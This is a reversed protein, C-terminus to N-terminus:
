RSPSPTHAIRPDVLPYILDVLLNTAVFVVAAFVVLGQVVPIDQAEVAQQTLRGIGNRSFVTEVVVSGAVLNGVTLGVMTLTPIVANRFVHRAQVHLRTAGKAWATEVYPQGWTMDLSKALLQAIVATTPVALTVAPLVLSRLGQNGMAPFVPLRFSLVQVLLLGVWFTPVSIGLPPLGLLFQRLWAVRTYTALFAIGVGAVLALLLASGALKLTEPLAQFILLLVPAGTTISTGFDGRVADGLMAAYQVPMSQDLHYRARLAAVQAPDVYSGQGGPDLMISVPDSPLLYLVVFTLTFAAWLVFVAQLARGALYRRM